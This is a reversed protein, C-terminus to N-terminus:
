DVPAPPQPDDPDMPSLEVRAAAVAGLALLQLLAGLLVSALFWGHAQAQAPRVATESLDGYTAMTGGVLVLLLVAVAPRVWRGAALVMGFIVQLAIVIPTASPDAGTAELSDYYAAQWLANTLFYGGLLIRGLVVARLEVPTRLDPAGFTLMLAGVLALQVLLSHANVQAHHDLPYEGIGGPGLDTHLLTAILGAVAMLPLTSPRVARGVAVLPGCVLYIAAVPVILLAPIGIQDLYAARVDWTYLWWAGDLAFGLGVLVRGLILLGAM